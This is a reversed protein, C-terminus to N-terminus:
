SAPASARVGRRALGSLTVELNDIYKAFSFRTSAIERGAEGMRRCMGPDALMRAMAAKLGDVDAAPVLIGNRGDELWDPIGGVAFAVVARAHRMAEVGVMGFPEQWASPVVVFQARRYQVALEGPALHGHLSVRGGLGFESIMRRCDGLATGQGALALHWPGDLGRLARLLLDVGKGRVVQGCFLIRGPESGDTGAAGGSEPPVPPLVAIRDEPFANKVLEGRMFGSAVVLLDLTRNARIEALKAGLSAFRVPFAGSGRQLFAMCPFLCAVSAPRTCNKRTLPHYKYHRMCYLAHDHVMRGLPLGRRALGSFQASDLWNHIWVADPAFREAVMEPDGGVHIHDFAGAWADLGVETSERCVLENSWGRERLASATALVNAEAGGFAGAKEHLWLIRM